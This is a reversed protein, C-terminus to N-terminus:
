FVGSISKVALKILIEEVKSVEREIKENFYCLSYYIM